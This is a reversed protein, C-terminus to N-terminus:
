CCLASIKYRASARTCDVVDGVRIVDRNEIFVLKFNMGNMWNVMHVLVTHVDGGVVVVTFIAGARLM